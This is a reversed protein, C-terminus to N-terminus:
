SGYDIVEVPNGGHEGYLYAQGGELRAHRQAAEWAESSTEHISQARRSFFRRCQWGRGHKMAAFRPYKKM